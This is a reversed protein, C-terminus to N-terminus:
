SCPLVYQQNGVICFCAFETPNGPLPCQVIAAGGQEHERCTGGCVRWAPGGHPQGCFATTCTAAFAPEITLTLASYVMAALVAGYLAWKRGNKILQTKM